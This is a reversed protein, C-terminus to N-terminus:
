WWGGNQRRRRRRRFIGGRPHQNIEHAIREIDSVFLDDQAPEFDTVVRLLDDTMLENGLVDVHDASYPGGRMPDDVRFEKRDKYERSIVKSGHPNLGSSKRRWADACIYGLSILPVSGDGDVYRIGYTVNLEEQQVTPDLILPPDVLNGGMGAGGGGESGQGAVSDARNRKYYYARETPLGVGYLCYIKMNPAYPLPTRTPDHWTRHSPPEDGYLSHYRISAIGPGLGGGYSELFELVDQTQVITKNALRQAVSTLNTTESSVQCAEEESGNAQCSAIKAELEEEGANTVALLPSFENTDAPCFPDTVNGNDDNNNNSNNSRSSSRNTCMDAGPGWLADSGRPLMSWLSGWSSWLDRRPKRGFFQEVVNGITGMFVTDSMEGSLLATAAKPVGLHSGAINVYAHVNQDVWNKGGGGGGKNVPTTVWAFFYHVVLAGMSHSTIVTKKGTLKNFAEVKYKLKTFYGDRKELMPFALRWDFPELSMTSPTYGLDALNEIIKGWVWYNAMFYDAAEFGEAARIRIDHPDSGTWPDLMMHQKWCDRETLFSRAGGFAAWLRQRFHKRACDKGGWVELGSTVFGPVMVVPYNAKAGQQALQYGPRTKEQTMYALSISENLRYLSQEIQPLLSNLHRSMTRPLDKLEEINFEEINVGSQKLVIVCALQLSWFVAGLFFYRKRPRYDQSQQTEKSSASGEEVAPVTMDDVHDSNEESSTIVTKPVGSFSSSVSNMKANRTPSPDNRTALPSPKTARSRKKTRKVM